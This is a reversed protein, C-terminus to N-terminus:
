AMTLAEVRDQLLSHKKSADARLFEAVLSNRKLQEELRQASIRLANAKAEYMVSLAAAVANLYAAIISVSVLGAFVSSIGSLISAPLAVLLILIVETDRVLGEAVKIERHQAALARVAVARINAHALVAIGLANEAEQQSENAFMRKLVTFLVVGVATIITASISLRWESGVPITTSGAIALLIMSALACLPIFVALFCNFGEIPTPEEPQQIAVALAPAEPHKSMLNPMQVQM